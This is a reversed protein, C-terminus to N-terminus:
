PIETWLSTPGPKLVGDDGVAFWARFGAHETQGHVLIDLVGDGDRDVPATLVPVACSAEAGPLPFTSMTGEAEADLVAVAAKCDGPDGVPARGGGAAPIGHAGVTAVAIYVPPALRRRMKVVSRMSVGAGRAPDIERTTHSGLVERLRFGAREVLAAPVPGGKEVAPLERDVIWLPGAEGLLTSGEPGPTPARTVTGAAGWLMVPATIAGRAVANTGSRYVGGDPPSPPCALLLALLM